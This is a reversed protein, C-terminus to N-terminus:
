QSETTLLSHWKHLEMACGLTYIMEMGMCCVQDDSPAARPHVIRRQTPLVIGYSKSPMTKTSATVVRTPCQSTRISTAPAHLMMHTNYCIHKVLCVVCNQHPQNHCRSRCDIAIHQLSNCVSHCPPHHNKDLIKGKTGVM